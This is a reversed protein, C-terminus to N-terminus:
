KRRHLPKYVPLAVTLLHIASTALIFGIDLMTVGSISGLDLTKQLEPCKCTGRQQAAGPGVM